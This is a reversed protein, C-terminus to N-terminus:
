YLLNFYCQMFLGSTSFRFNIILLGDIKYGRRQFINDKVILKIDTSLKM